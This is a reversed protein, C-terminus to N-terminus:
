IDSWDDEDEDEEDAEEEQEQALPCVKKVPTEAGLLVGKGLIKELQKITM